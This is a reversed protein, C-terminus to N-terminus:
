SFRHGSGVVIMRSGCLNFQQTDLPELFVGPAQGRQKGRGDSRSSGAGVELV